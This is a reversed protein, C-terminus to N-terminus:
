KGYHNSYAGQASLFNKLKKGPHKNMKENFKPLAPFVSSLIYKTATAKESEYWM